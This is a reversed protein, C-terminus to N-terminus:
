EFLIDMPLSKDVLKRSYENEKLGYTTVMTLLVTKKTGTKQKFVSLKRQLESGYSKDIMFEQTCFKIECLNIVHDARDILLDVQAGEEGKGPVSRWTAERSLVGSIGLAEKIKFIHKLCLAEFAMGCWTKYSNGTSLKMWGDKGSTLPKEMFKLYFLSYEDILRYVAHKGTHEYPLMSQIFGSRELEDLIRTTWGGSTLGCTEIIEQRTMGKPTKALARVVHIHQDANEFLSGYLNKFEGTLFGNKDFCTKQIAQTASSGPEMSKLYQPIGGFAMYLQIIQYHDIHVGRSSLYAETEQLSFPELQLKQTIRHHLGGRNNVINRIMWSAASGCIVVIINPQRSAWTNWFHSFAALFGSKRTDLWPFEDLFVVWKKRKNKEALYHELVHFADIWSEPAKIPFGTAKELGKSFQQLQDALLGGYMGTLEFALHEEFFKHILFTKGVRRRGYVAVLEAEKSQLVKKLLKQEEKRGIIKEM